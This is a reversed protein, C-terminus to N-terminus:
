GPPGGGHLATAAVRRLAAAARLASLAASPRLLEHSPSDLVVRVV